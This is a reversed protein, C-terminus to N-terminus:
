ECYDENYFKRGFLRASYFLFTARWAPIEENRLLYYFILDNTYRDFNCTKRSLWDHIIAAHIFSDQEAMTLPWLFYPFQSLDSVLDRPVIFRDGEIMFYIENRNSYHSSDLHEILIPDFIVTQIHTSTCGSLLGLVLAMWQLPLKM